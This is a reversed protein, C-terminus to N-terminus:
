LGDCPRLCAGTQGPQITLERAQLLRDVFSQQYQYLLLLWGNPDPEEGQRAYCLLVDLSAPLFCLCVDLNAEGRLHDPPPPTSPRNQGNAMQTVHVEWHNWSQVGYPPLGQRGLM